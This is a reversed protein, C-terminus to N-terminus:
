QNFHLPSKCCREWQGITRITTLCIEITPFQKEVTLYKDNSIINPNGTTFNSRLHETLWLQTFVGLQRKM